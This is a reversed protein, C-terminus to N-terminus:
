TFEDFGSAPSGSPVRTRRVITHPDENDPIISRAGSLQLYVSATVILGFTYHYPDCPPEWTKGLLPM